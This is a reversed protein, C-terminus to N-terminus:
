VRKKLKNYLTQRTIGLQQATLSINGRNRLMVSQIVRQEITDLTEDIALGYNDTAFTFSEAITASSETQRKKESQEIELKYREIEKELYAIKSKYEKRIVANNISILIEHENWPKHIFDFAGSGICEAAMPVQAFTSLLVIEFDRYNGKLTTVTGSAAEKTRFLDLDMLVVDLDETGAIGEAQQINDTTHVKEFHKKLLIGLSTLLGNNPEVILIRGNKKM